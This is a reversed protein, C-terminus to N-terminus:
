AKNEEGGPAYIKFNIEEDPYLEKYRIRYLEFTDQMLWLYELFEKPTCLEYLRFLIHKEDVDMEGILPQVLEEEVIRETIQAANYFLREELEFIKRVAEAAYQEFVAAARKSPEYFLDAKKQQGDFGAAKKQKERLISYPDAISDFFYISGLFREKFIHQMEVPMYNIMNEIKGHAVLHELRCFERYKEPDMAKQAGLPDLPDYYINYLHFILLTAFHVAYKNLFSFKNDIDAAAASSAPERDAKYFQIFEDLLAAGEEGKQFLALWFDQLANYKPEETIKIYKDFFNEFVQNRDDDQGLIQRENRRDILYELSTGLDRSNILFDNKVILSERAKREKEKASERRVPKNDGAFYGALNRSEEKIRRLNDLKDLIDWDEEDTSNNRGAPPPQDNIWQDLESRTLLEFDQELLAKALLLNGKVAGTVAELEKDDLKPIKGKEYRSWTKAPAETKQTPSGFAAAGAAAQTMGARIRWLKLRRGLKQKPSLKEQVAAQPAPAAPESAAELAATRSKKPPLLNLKRKPKSGATELKKADPKKM